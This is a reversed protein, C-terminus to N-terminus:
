KKIRKKLKKLEAYLRNYLSQAEKIESEEVLNYVMRSELYNLQRELSEILIVLETRTLSINM